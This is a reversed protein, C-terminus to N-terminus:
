KDNAKEPLVGPEKLDGDLIAQEETKFPWATGVKIDPRASVEVLRDFTLKQHPQPELLQVVRGGVIRAWLAM